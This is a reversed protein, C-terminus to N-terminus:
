CLFINYETYDSGDPKEISFLMVSVLSFTILM